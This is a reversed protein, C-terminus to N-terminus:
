IQIDSVNHMETLCQDWLNLTLRTNREIQVNGKSYVTNRCVLKM